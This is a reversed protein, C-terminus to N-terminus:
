AQVNRLDSVEYKRKSASLASGLQVFTNQPVKQATKAPCMGPCDFDCKLFLFRM